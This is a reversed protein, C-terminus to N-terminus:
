IIITTFPNFIAKYGKGPMKDISKLVNSTNISINLYNPKKKYLYFDIGNYVVHVIKVGKYM